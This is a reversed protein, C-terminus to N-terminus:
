DPINANDADADFWPFGDKSYVMGESLVPFFKWIFIRLIWHGAFPRRVM